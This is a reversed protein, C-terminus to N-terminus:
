SGDKELLSRLRRAASDWNLESEFAAFAARAMLDYNEQQRWTTAIYQCIEEIPTELAFARGSIDEKIATPIGGTAAGICPVGYSAAECIVHPFIDATSFLLLFHAATFYTNLTQRGEHTKKDVFGLSNIYPPMPDFPPECGIVTLRAPIGQENLLRTLEASRPGGKREWDTGVLLLECCTRSRQQLFGEIDEQSHCTELNSGYPIVHIKDPAVDFNQAAYDASWRTPFVVHTARQMAEADIHRYYEVAAPPLGKGWPYIGIMQSYCADQWTVLPKSDQLLSVLKFETSLLFKGKTYRAQRKIQNAYSRAIQRDTWWFTEKRSLKGWIFRTLGGLSPRIDLPAIYDVHEFARELAPHLFLALGRFGAQNKPLNINKNFIDKPHILTIATM